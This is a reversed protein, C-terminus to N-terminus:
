VRSEHCTTHNTCKPAPLTSPPSKKSCRKRETITKPKGLIRECKCKCQAHSILPRLGVTPRQEPLQRQHLKTRHLSSQQSATCAQIGKVHLLPSFSCMNERYFMADFQMAGQQLSSYVAVPLRASPGKPQIAKLFTSMRSVQSQVLFSRLIATATRISRFQFLLHM